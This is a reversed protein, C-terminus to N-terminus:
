VNMNFEVRVCLEVLGATSVLGLFTGDTQSAFIVTHPEWIRYKMNYKCHSGDKALM